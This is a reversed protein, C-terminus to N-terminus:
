ISPEDISVCRSGEKRNHIREDIIDGYREMRDLAIHRHTIMTKREQIERISYCWPSNRATGMKEKHLWGHRVGWKIDDLDFGNKKAWLPLDKERIQDKLPEYMKVATAFGLKFAEVMQIRDEVLDM